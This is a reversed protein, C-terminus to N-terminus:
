PQILQRLMIGCNRAHCSLYSAEPRVMTPTWVGSNKQSFGSSLTFSAVVLNPM